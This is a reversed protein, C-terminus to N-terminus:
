IRSAKVEPDSLLQEIGKKREFEKLQSDEPHKKRGKELLSRADKERDLVILLYIQAMVEAPNQTADYRDEHLSLAKKYATKADATKELRKRISGLSFWWDPIDDRLKVAKTLSEEARAFDRIQVAFAADSAHNEAEAAVLKSVTRPQGPQEAAGGSKKGCGAFLSGALVVVVTAGFARTRGLFLRNM